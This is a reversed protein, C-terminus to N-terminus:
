DPQFSKPVILYFSAATMPNILEQDDGNIGIRVQHLQLENPSVMCPEACKPHLLQLLDPPANTPPPTVPEIQVIAVYRSGL